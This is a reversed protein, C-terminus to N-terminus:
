KKLRNVVSLSYPKHNNYIFIYNEEPNKENPDKFPYEEIIQICRKPLTIKRDSYINKTTTKSNSTSDWTGNVHLINDEINKKQIPAISYFHVCFLTSYDTEYSVFVFP